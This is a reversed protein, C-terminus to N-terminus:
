RELLREVERAFMEWRFKAAHAMSRKIVETRIREEQLDSMIDKVEKADEHMVFLAAEGGAEVLSSNHMTIVPAGCAMAEVVPFGFGEYKSLYLFAQCMSYLVPLDPKPVYGTRIIDVKNPHNEVHELIGEFKWGLGGTIVLQHQIEPHEKRFLAFAELLLPINKRPELTGVYLFFPRRIGLRELVSVDQKPQFMPDIGPYAMGTKGKTFPYVNLVDQETNRSNTLVLHAKRLIGKLFIKQLIQSHWRHWQPFLIPTLDHIITVRKIRKPLNFPGFHAPEIVMDAKHKLALYPILFFLRISAFGIPLHINPVRLQQLEPFQDDQKERLLIYEHKHPLAALAKVMERTYVHIGAHQNDIPDAIILIRM